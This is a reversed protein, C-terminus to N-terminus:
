FTLDIGFMFSKQWPYSMADQAVNESSDRTYASEPDVYACNKLMPSWYALNEGTFYIRLKEIGIKKTIKDPITYGVSLNKLRLYAINQLYYSNTKSLEGGTSSYARPRPFYANPNEESWCRQIFDRQIFTTYSYAYPGWFMMNMKAPYWYHDGTGQFFISFDFGCYDFALNFGYQLSPLSNGIIKRDGPNIVSNTGNSLRGDKEYHDVVPLGNEDLVTKGNEDVKFVPTELDVFRLDGGRFGGTLRGTVIPTADCVEATYKQAEEDSAFLGDVVYGWIDGLRQGVYYDNLLYNPNNNYKTIHSRYDSLSGKISYGFPRGGLKFQDRWSISLEYGKTRLDASNMKPSSAGYVSPLPMGATLMNKTDRIYAEATFELRNKFFAADIGLNYQQSTEWTLDGSVPAGIGAQKSLSSGEGFNYELNSISIKRIYDYYGVNQNGLSGYSARIKLNDVVKRAPSFFPEESIRWGASASPFFGWRHGKAFRSTGDYRASLEVLYRGKYDYNLRGFVGILAYANQGGSVKTVVSGDSATGVLNLDDLRESLLYDGTAGVSKSNWSEINTGVVATFHHANNWTEEFNAYVNGSLYNYTAISESLENLGAGTAYSELESDPYRRYWIENTRTTNRNQYLRYTFNGVIKFQEVPQITLETTNTFDSRRQVNRHSGEGFIIHRGNAVNYNGSIMPTGYIWSGDPNKLPFSAMAHRSAYAFSDQINGGVWSYNSNFFSTNNSMRMYKNIKFDIKSRLNYKQFIDPNIKMIGSQRDYGGSVFYRVSKNGGSVSVSYQQTPHQDRYLEHYWDTNCYYVWQNRGNRVDEIVWPRDPNETVDNVRALLQAMDADTYTTYKKGADSMWFKDVTYVSWYGRTEFDTSTTPEEWGWRGSLRVTAKSNDTGSKTTVLIVGYAARAGYVAAAAADKIVSISEVDNANVRNLDGIAGDILVIPEADNISTIGRINISANAGPNGASTSINLGPVSGQLMNTVSHATRNELAKGDVATIAGTLNVKKQTGYGVVITEDLMTSDEVLVVSLNSQKASVNIKQESYGLSSIVLVVDKAPVTLAFTGTETTIVGNSTGEQMVAVGALPEGAGDTVTGTVQRSQAQANVAVSLMLAAGTLFHMLKKFM